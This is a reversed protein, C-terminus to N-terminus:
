RLSMMLMDKSSVQYYHTRAGKKFFRYCPDGKYDMGGEKIKGIYFSYNIFTNKVKEFYSLAVENVKEKNYKATYQIIVDIGKCGIEKISKIVNEVGELREDLSRNGNPSLTIYSFDRKDDKGYNCWFFLDWNSKYEMKDHEYQYIVYKKSLAEILPEIILATRQSIINGRAEWEKIPMTEHTRFNEAKEEETFRVSSLRISHVDLMAFGKEIALLDSKSLYSRDERIM